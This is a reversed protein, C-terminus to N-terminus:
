ESYIVKDNFIIMYHYLGIDYIEVYKYIVGNSEHIIEIEEVGLQKCMTIDKDMENM